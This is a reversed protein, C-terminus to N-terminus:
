DLRKASIVKVVPALMQGKMAGEGETPSTPSTLIKRVVDMGESVHGFAAFGQNDGPQTPDADLSHMPGTTIFFDATASDPAARAMSITGEVHALGTKSTPELAIPPFLKKPDNRLGGQILGASATLNMARYFTM